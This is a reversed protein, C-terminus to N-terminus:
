GEVTKHLLPLVLWGRRSAGMAAIVVIRVPTM